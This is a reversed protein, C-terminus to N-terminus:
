KILGKLKMANYTEEIMKDTLDEMSGMCYRSLINNLLNNDKSTMEYLKIRKESIVEEPKKQETKEGDFDRSDDICFLGNLAYKRAYSSTSGTLQAAGMMKSSEDEQAYGTSSISTGDSNTLVATSKIYVKGSLEELEDKLVIFCNYKKLLPKLHELISECSRYKYRVGQGQLEKPAKLEQQIAILEKMYKLKLTKITFAGIKVSLHVLFVLFLKM